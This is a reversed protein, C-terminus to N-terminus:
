LQVLGFIILTSDLNSHIMLLRIRSAEEICDTRPPPWLDTKQGSAFTRAAFRNSGSPGNIAFSGKEEARGPIVLSVFPILSAHLHLPTSLMVHISLSEERRFIPPSLFNFGLLCHHCMVYTIGSKHEEKLKM